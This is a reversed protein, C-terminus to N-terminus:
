SWFVRYGFVLGIIWPFGLDGLDLPRWPLGDDLFGIMDDYRIFDLFCLFYCFGLGLGLNGRM